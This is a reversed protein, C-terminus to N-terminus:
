FFSIPDFNGWEQVAFVPVIVGLREERVPSEVLHSSTRHHDLCSLRRITPDVNDVDFSHISAKFARSLNSSTLILFLQPVHELSSYPCKLNEYVKKHASRDWLRGGPRRARANKRSFIVRGTSCISPDIHATLNLIPYIRSSEYVM